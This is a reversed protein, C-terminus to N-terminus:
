FAIRFLVMIEPLLNRMIFQLLLLLACAYCAINIIKSFVSMMNETVLMGFIAQFCAILVIQGVLALLERM